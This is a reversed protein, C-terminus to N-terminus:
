NDSIVRYAYKRNKYGQFPRTGNMVAGLTQVHLASLKDVAERIASFRSVQHM